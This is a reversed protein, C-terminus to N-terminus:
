KEEERATRSAAEGELLTLKEEFWRHSKRKCLAIANEIHAKDMHKMEIRRGDACVWTDDSEPPNPDNLYDSALSDQSIGVSFMKKRRIRVHLAHSM